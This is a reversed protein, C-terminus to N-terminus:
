YAYRIRLFIVVLSTCSRCGSGHSVVKASGGHHVRTGVMGVMGVLAGASRSLNVFVNSISVAYCRKKDREPIYPDLFPDRYQWCNQGSSGRLLNCTAAFVFVSFKITTYIICTIHNLCSSSSGSSGSRAVVV